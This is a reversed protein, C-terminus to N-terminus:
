GEEVLRYFFEQPKSNVEIGSQEALWRNIHKSTTVSHFKETKYLKDDSICGGPVRAAVPTEYSFFVISSNVSLTSQNSGVKTRQYM